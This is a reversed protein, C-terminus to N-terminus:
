LSENTEKRAPINQNLLKSADAYAEKIDTTAEDQYDGVIREYCLALLRLTDRKVVVHSKNIVLRRRIEGLYNIADLHEATLEDFLKETPVSGLDSRHEAQGTIYKVELAVSVQKVHGHLWDLRQTPTLISLNQIIM